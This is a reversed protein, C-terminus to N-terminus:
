ASVGLEVPPYFPDFSPFTHKNWMAWLVVLCVDKVAKICCVRSPACDVVQADEEIMYM